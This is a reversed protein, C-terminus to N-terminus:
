LNLTPPLLHLPLTTGQLCRALQFTTASLSTQHSLVAAAGELFLQQTGRPEVSASKPNPTFSPLLAPFLLSLSRIIYVTQSSFASSLQCSSLIQSANATRHQLNSLPPFVTLYVTVHVYINTINLDSKMM